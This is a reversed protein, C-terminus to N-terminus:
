DEWCDQNDGFDFEPKHGWTGNWNGWGGIDFASEASEGQTDIEKSARKERMGDDAQLDSASGRMTKSTLLTLGSDNDASIYEYEAASSDAPIQHLYSPPPPCRPSSKTTPETSIRHTDIPTSLDQTKNAQLSDESNPPSTIKAEFISMHLLETGNDTAERGFAPRANSMRRKHIPNPKPSADNPRLYSGISPSAAQSSPTSPASAFEAKNKFKTSPTPPTSESSSDTYEFSDNQGDTWNRRPARQSLPTLVKGVESQPTRRNQHRPPTPAQPPVDFRSTHRPPSPTRYRNLKPPLNQRALRDLQFNAFSITV